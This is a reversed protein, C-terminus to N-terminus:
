GHSAVGRAHAVASRRAADVLASEDGSWEGCWQNRETMPFKQVITGSTPNIYVGPPYRHCHGAMPHSGVQDTKWYVCLACVPRRESM